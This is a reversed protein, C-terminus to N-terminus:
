FTNYIMDFIVNETSFNLNSTSEDLIYFDNNKLFSFNSKFLERDVRIEETIFGLEGACKSLGLMNTGKIDTAMIDRLHTITTENHYHLCIMALCAAACDTAEHQKIFTYRLILRWARSIKKVISCPIM